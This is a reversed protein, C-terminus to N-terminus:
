IKNLIGGHHEEEKTKYKRFFFFAIPDLYKILNLNSIQPFCVEYM